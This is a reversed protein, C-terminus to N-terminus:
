ELIDSAACFPRLHDFENFNLPVPPSLPIRHLHPSLRMWGSSPKGAVRPSAHTSQRGLLAVGGRHGTLRRCRTTIPRPRAPQSSASLAASRSHERVHESVACELAAHHRGATDVCHGCSCGVGSPFNRRCRLRSRRSDSDLGGDVSTECSRYVHESHLFRRNRSSNGIACTFAIAAAASSSRATSRRHDRFRCPETVSVKAACSWQRM